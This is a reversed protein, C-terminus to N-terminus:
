GHSAEAPPALDSAEPVAGGRRYVEDLYAFAAGADDALACARLKRDFREEPSEPELMWYSIEGARILAGIKVLAPHDISREALITEYTSRRASRSWKAGPLDFPVAGPPPEAGEPLLLVETRPDVHRAILWASAVRDPELVGRTYYRTPEAGRTETGPGAAGLAALPMLLAGLLRRFAPRCARTAARLPAAERTLALRSGPM